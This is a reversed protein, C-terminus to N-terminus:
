PDCAACECALARDRVRQGDHVRQRGVVQARAGSAHGRPMVAPQGRREDERRVLEAAREVRERELEAGDEGVVHDHGAAIREVAEPDLGGVQAARAFHLRAAM